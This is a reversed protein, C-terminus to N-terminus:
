IYPQQGLLQPDRYARGEHVEVRRGAAEAGGQGRQGSPAGPLPAEWNSKMNVEVRQGALQSPLSGTGPLHTRKSRSQRLRKHPRHRSPRGKHTPYRMLLGLDTVLAQLHSDGRVAQLHQAVVPQQADRQVAQREGHPRVQGGPRAQLRRHTTLGGQQGAHRQEARALHELARSSSSCRRSVAQIALLAELPELLEYSSKPRGRGRHQLEQAVCHQADDHRAAADEDHRGLDGVAEPDPERLVRGALAGALDDQQQGHAEHEALEGEGHSVHGGQGVQQARPEALHVLRLKLPQMSELGRGLEASPAPRGDDVLQLPRLAAAAVWCGRHQLSALQPLPLPLENLEGLNSLGSPVFSIQAPSSVRANVWEALSQRGGVPRHQLQNFHLAAVRQWHRDLQIARGRQSWSFIDLLQPKAVALAQDSVDSFNAVPHEYDGPTVRQLVLLEA